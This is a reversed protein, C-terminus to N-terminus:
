QVEHKCTFSTQNLMLHKCVLIGVVYIDPPVNSHPAPHLVFKLQAAGDLFANCAM